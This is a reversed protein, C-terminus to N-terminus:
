YDVFLLLIWEHLLLSLVLDPEDRPSRAADAKRQCPLGHGFAIAHGGGRAREFAQPLCKAVVARLKQCQFDIEDALCAHFGGDVLGDGTETADVAHDVIGAITLLASHLRQAVGFQAAIEVDVDERGGAHAAGNM